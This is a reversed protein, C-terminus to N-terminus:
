GAHGMIMIFIAVGVAIAVAVVVHTWALAAIGVCLAAWTWRRHEGVLWSFCGFGAGVFGCISAALGLKKSMPWPEPVPPAVQVPAKRRFKDATKKITDSLVDSIEKTKPPPPPESEISMRYTAIGLGLFGVLLGILAFRYGRRLKPRAPTPPESIPM